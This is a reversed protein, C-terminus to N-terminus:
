KNAKISSFKKGIRRLVKKKIREIKRYNIRNSNGIRGKEVDDLTYVHTNRSKALKVEFDAIKQLLENEFKMGSYETIVTKFCGMRRLLDCKLILLEENKGNKAIIKNIMKVCQKRCEKAASNNRMDDSAWAAYLSFWMAQDINNDQKSILYGKYFRKALSSRFLIGDCRLYDKSNLYERTVTTKEDIDSAVYGCNPCEQAWLSMTHRIMGPRRTDLDMSGFSNTSTLIRYNRKTGCVFCKCTRERMTTM